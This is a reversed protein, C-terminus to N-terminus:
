FYYTAGVKTGYDTEDDMVVELEAYLELNETVEVDGGVEVVFATDGTEGDPLQFQTGTEVYAGVTESVDFEYGVRTDITSGEYDSGTWDSELETNIYVGEAMAPAAILAPAALAAAALAFTKVM